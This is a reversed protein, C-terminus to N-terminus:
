SELWRVMATTIAEPREMTSMHGCEPVSVLHSGKILRAMEEHRSLPSWSDDRGCLVLAPM